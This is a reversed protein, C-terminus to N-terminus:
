EENEARDPDVPPHKKWTLWNVRKGTIECPAVFAERIRERKLLENVRASVTSTELGTTAAIMRRSAYNHKVLAAYVREIQQDELPGQVHDHYAGISTEAVATKM